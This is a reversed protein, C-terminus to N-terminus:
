SHETKRCTRPMWCKWKARDEARRKMDVYSTEMLEQLMGRRPRGRPRKGEMKGEMVERLMGDGRLVHGMWNKKRKVIIDVLQRREGVISLVEENTKKEMWSIKEMRRWLWMELANLRKVDEERLIWTEAGYLAGSWVVTKVIKKKVSRSMKQTLLEKRKSFADRAM